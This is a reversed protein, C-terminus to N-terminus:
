CFLILPSFTNFFVATVTKVSRPKNTALCNSTLTHEASNHYRTINYATVMTESFYAAGM